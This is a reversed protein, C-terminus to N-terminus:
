KIEGISVIDNIDISYITKNVTILIHSLSPEEELDLEDYNDLSKRTAYISYAISEISDKAKLKRGDRLTVLCRDSCNDSVTYIKRALEEWERDISM